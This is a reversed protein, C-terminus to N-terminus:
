QTRESSKKAPFDNRLGRIVSQPLLEDLRDLTWAQDTFVTAVPKPQTMLSIHEASIVFDQGLDRAVTRTFGAIGEKAAAYNAQGM